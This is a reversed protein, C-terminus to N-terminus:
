PLVVEWCGLGLGTKSGLGRYYLLSIEEEKGSIEGTLNFCTTISNKGASSSIRATKRHSSLVKIEVSPNGVGLKNELFWNTVKNLNSELRSGDTVFRKRNDFDKVLVPSLTKFSTHGKFRVPKADSVAKVRYVTDAIKVYPDAALGLRLFETIRDDLTRLVIFGNDIQLGNIGTPPKASIINSFTFVSFNLRDHLPRVNKQYETLKSYLAMALFYNYEYPIIKGSVRDLHVLSSKM